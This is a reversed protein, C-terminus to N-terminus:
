GTGHGRLIDQSLPNMARKLEKESAPEVEVPLAGPTEVRLYAPETWRICEIRQGDDREVKLNSVIRAFICPTQGYFFRNPSSYGHMYQRKREKRKNALRAM